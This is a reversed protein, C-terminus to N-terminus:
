KEDEDYEDKQYTVYGLWHKAEGNFQCLIEISFIEEPFFDVCFRNVKEQLEESSTAEFIQVQKIM